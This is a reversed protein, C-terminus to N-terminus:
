VLGIIFNNYEFVEHIEPVKGFLAFILGGVTEFDSDLEEFLEEPANRAILAAQQGAQQM